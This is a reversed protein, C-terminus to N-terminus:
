EKRNFDRSLLLHYYYLFMPVSIESNDNHRGPIGKHMVINQSQILWDRLQGFIRDDYDDNLMHAIFFNTKSLDASRFHKWFEQDIVTINSLQQHDSLYTQLDLVFPFIQPAKLIQNEAVQNLNVMPKNIIVGHPLLDAAYYLSAHTGMSMGSLVLQENTFGLYALKEQIRKVIEQQFAKTGRYFAGGVLGTDEFLMFPTKMKKMMFYGEFGEASRFGGFYVCLPPKFDGPEFYSIFEHCQEDVFREGGLIFSGYKGRAQRLHLSGIRVEGEGKIYLQYNHIHYSALKPGYIVGKIIEEQSFTYIKEIQGTYQNLEIVELQVEVSGTSHLELFLETKRQVDALSWNHERWTCLYQFDKGFDSALVVEHEGKRQITGQYNPSIAVFVPQIRLGYQGTYFYTAIDTIIDDPHNLSISHSQKRKLAILLVEDEIQSEDYLITYFDMVELLIQYEVLDQADTLLLANYKKKPNEKTAALKMKEIEINATKNDLFSWEVHEPIEYQSAWNSNGVQLCKIKAM